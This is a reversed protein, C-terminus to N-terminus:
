YLIARWDEETNLVWDVPAVETNELMCNETEDRLPCTRCSYERCVNKLTTLAKIIEEHTVAM